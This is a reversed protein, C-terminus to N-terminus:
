MKHVLAVPQAADRQTLDAADREKAIASEPQGMSRGCREMTDLSFLAGLVQVAVSPPDAAAGDAPLVLLRRLNHRRRGSASSLLPESKM